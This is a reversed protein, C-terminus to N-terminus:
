AGEYVENILAVEKIQGRRGKRSERGTRGAEGGERGGRETRGAEGGERGGRETRGAEGGERGAQGRERGGLREGEDEMTGKSKEEQGGLIGQRGRVGRNGYYVSESQHGSCPRM